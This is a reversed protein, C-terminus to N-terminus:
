ESDDDSNIDALLKQDNDVDVKHEISLFDRNKQIEAEQKIIQVKTKYSLIMKLILFAGAFVVLGLIVWKLEAITQFSVKSVYILLDPIVWYLFAFLIVAFGLSYVNLREITSFLKELRTKEFPGEKNQTKKRKRTNKPQFIDKFVRTLFVTFMTFIMPVCVSLAIWARTPFKNDIEYMKITYGEEKFSRIGYLRKFESIDIANYRDEYIIENDSNTIKVMDRDTTQVLCILFIIIEIIIFTTVISFLGPMHSDVFNRLKKESM